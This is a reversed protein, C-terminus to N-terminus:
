RVISFYMFIKTRYAFSIMNFTTLGHIWLQEMGLCVNPEENQGFNKHYGVEMM